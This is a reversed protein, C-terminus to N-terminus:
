YRTYLPMEINKCITSTPQPMPPLLLYIACFYPAFAVPMVKLELCTAESARRNHKSVISHTYKSSGRAQAPVVPLLALGAVLAAPGINMGLQLHMADARQGLIM